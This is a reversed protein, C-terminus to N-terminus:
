NVYHVEVSLDRYADFGSIQISFEKSQIDFELHNQNFALGNVGETKISSKMKSLEFDDSSLKFPSGGRLQTYGAKLIARGNKAKTGSKAEDTFRVVFGEDIKQIDFLSTQVKPRPTGPPKIKPKQDNGESGGTGPAGAGTPFWKAYRSDETEDDIAQVMRVIRNASDKVYRILEAGHSKVYKERFKTEEASWREHSPGEAQGLCDALEGSKVVVLVMLGKFKLSSSAASPILIGERAFTPTANVGDRKLALVSFEDLTRDDRSGLKQPILSKVTFEVAKGAELAEVVFDKNEEELVVEDWKNSKFDRPWLLNAKITTDAVKEKYLACLALLEAKTKSSRTLLEDDLDDLMSEVSDANINVPVGSASVVTCEITRDLIAVFYDQIICQILKEESFSEDCFPVIISTGNESLTRSLGWDQIFSAMESEGTFPQHVGDSVEMWRCEPEWREGNFDHFKLLANGFLISKPLGNHRSRVSLVLQSKISSSRPFVIKGVGNKGRTGENKNSSGTAWAFYWFSNDAGDAPKDSSISGLLGTTKFDEIALYFCSGKGPVKSEGLSASIRPYLNDFYKSATETPVEGLKFIMKVPSSSSTDKADIANQISERVLISQSTLVDTNTFFNEGQPENEVSNRQKTTGLWISKPNAM